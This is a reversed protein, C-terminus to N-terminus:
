RSQHHVLQHVLPRCRLVRQRLDLLAIRLLIPLAQPLSNLLSHTFLPLFILHNNFNLRLLLFTRACFSVEKTPSGTPSVSPSKSPSGTPSLSPSHSPSSTPQLQILFLLHLLQFIHYGKELIAWLIHEVFKSVEKTPSSTPYKTPLETPELSISPESSPQSSPMGSTSPAISVSPEYSPQASPESSVSPQSSPSMTPSHSPSSTPQYINSSSSLTVHDPLSLFSLTDSCLLFFFFLIDTDKQYGSFIHM